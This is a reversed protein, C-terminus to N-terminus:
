SRKTGRISSSHSSLRSKCTQVVESEPNEYSDGLERMEEAIIKFAVIMNSFIVQRVEKREDLHFGESYIIRMQKLITSKGSEGAGQLIVILPQMMQSPCDSERCEGLLLIKVRKADAKKDRRILRDIEANKRREESTTRTLTNGGGAKPFCMSFVMSFQTTEQPAVIVESVRPGM